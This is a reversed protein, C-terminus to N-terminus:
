NDTRAYKGGRELAFICVIYNYCVNCLNDIGANQLNAM